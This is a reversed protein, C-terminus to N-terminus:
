RVSEKENTVIQQRNGLAIRRGPPVVLFEEGWRGALLAEILRHDSRRSDMSLGWRRAKDEADARYSAPESSAGELYVLRRYHATWGQMADALYAANEPGFRDVLDRHGEPSVGLTAVTGRRNGELLDRSMWYTGPCSTFERDYRERSGLRLTICDHARAMVLPVSGAVLGRTAGGCLGFALLVADVDDQDQTDIREQLERRLRAPRDHLGQDLTEVSIVAASTAAAEHVARAMSACSLVRYHAPRATM